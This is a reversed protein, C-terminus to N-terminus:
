EWLLGQDIKSPHKSEKAIMKGWNKPVFWNLDRFNNIVIGNKTPETSPKKEQKLCYAAVREIAKIHDDMPAM